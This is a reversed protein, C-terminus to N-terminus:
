LRRLRYPALLAEAALSQPSVGGALDNTRFEYMQGILLLLAQKIPKPVAAADAWGVVYRVTVADWRRQTSPWSEDPALHVKAPPESELSYTDSDLTQEVGNQDIYKLSTISSVQGMPLEIPRDCDPFCPLVLEWTQTIFGRWCLEEAHQRAATILATIYTEDASDEYRLHGKAEALSVPETAPATVLRPPM